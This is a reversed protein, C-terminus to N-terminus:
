RHRPHALPAHLLEGAARATVRVLGRQGRARHDERVTERALARDTRTAVAVHDRCRERSPELHKDEVGAAAGGERPCLLKEAREVIVRPEVAAEDLRAAHEGEHVVAVHLGREGEAAEAEAREELHPRGV